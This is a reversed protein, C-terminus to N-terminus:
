QCKMSLTYVLSQGILVSTTGSLAIAALFKGATGTSTTVLGVYTLSTWNSGTAPGFTEAAATTMFDGSDLAPAGWDTNAIQQRAYGNAGPAPSETMTAMTTTEGPTGQLLCLFKTPNAAELFYVNLISEEGEDALLNEVWSGESAISGDANVVTAKGLTPHWKGDKGNTGLVRRGAADTYFGLKIKSDM